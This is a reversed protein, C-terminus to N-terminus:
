NEPTEKRGWKVREWIREHGYYLFIKTFLETASISLAFNLKHTILLTLLFTDATGTLRWTFAKVLSRSHKIESM